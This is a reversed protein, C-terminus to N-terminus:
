ELLNPITKYIPKQNCINSPIFPRDCYTHAAKYITQKYTDDLIKKWSVNKEFISCYNEMSNKLFYSFFGGIDKNGTARQNSDAACALISMPKSNMFLTSCNEPSLLFGSGKVKTPKNSEVRPVPAFTNCCDAMVLNFRAQKSVIKNFIDKEMNLSQTYYNSDNKSRLDINPFRSKGLGTTKRFGHGSYYFIVIDKKPTPKLNAIALEVNKKTYEDGTITKIIINKELIGLKHAIDNFSETVRAMDKKCSEGIDAALVNAVVLLFIKTNKDVKVAGRDLTPFLDTFFDETPDNTFPLVLSSKLDRKEIYTSNFSNNPDADKLDAANYIVTAPESYGTIPDTKFIFGISPNFPVSQDSSIVHQMTSAYIVRNTDIMGSHDVISQEQMKMEIVASKKDAPNAFQIRVLATGNESRIFIAQYNITDTPQRFNYRFHYITQSFGSFYSTLALIFSLLWQQKM